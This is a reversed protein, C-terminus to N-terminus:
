GALSLGSALIADQVMAAEAEAGAFHRYRRRWVNACYLSPHTLVVLAAVGHDLSVWPYIKDCATLTRPVQIGFLRPGLM